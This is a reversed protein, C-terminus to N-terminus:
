APGEEDHQKESLADAWIRAWSKLAGVSFFLEEGLSSLENRRAESTEILRAQRLEKLRSSLVSPSIGQCARQLDRFGLPRDHLEWIIQLIWRRGILDLAAM